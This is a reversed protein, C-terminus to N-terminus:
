NRLQDATLLREATEEAKKLYYSYRGDDRSGYRNGLMVWECYEYFLFHELDRLYEEYAIGHRGPVREYFYRIAADRDSDKMFFYADKDERGHAILRAFSSLYPLIGGYEWDILVAREGVLVNIPLLDEHCLTRPVKKYVDTFRGYAKELLESGLYRGREEVSRLAREMTVACDSLDDRQWFENQMASLADVAKMLMEPESLRLTEGQCHELLIFEDGDYEASGLFAPVYSKRERFFGKYCETELGKAKKLVYRNDGTDVLWVEYENGDEECIFPAIGRVTDGPIGLSGAVIKLETEPYTRKDEV